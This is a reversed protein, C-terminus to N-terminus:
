IQAAINKAEQMLGVVEDLVPIIEARIQDLSVGDKIAAEYTGPNGWDNFTRGGVERGLLEDPNVSLKNLIEPPLAKLGYLNTTVTRLPDGHVGRTSPGPALVLKKENWESFESILVKSEEACSSVLVCDKALKIKAAMVQMNANQDQLSKEWEARSADKKSKGTKKQAQKFLDDGAHKVKPKSSRLLKGKRKTKKVPVADQESARDVESLPKHSLLRVGGRDESALVNDLRKKYVFPLLSAWSKVTEWLREKLAPKGEHISPKYESDFDLSASDSLRQVDTSSAEKIKRGFRGGEPIAGSSTDSDDQVHYEPPRIGTTVKPGESM